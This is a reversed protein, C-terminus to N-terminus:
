REQSIYEDSQKLNGVLIEYFGTCTSRRYTTVVIVCLSFIWIVFANWFSSDNEIICGVIGTPLIGVIYWGIFSLNLAFFKGKNGRMMWKSEDICRMVGKTPDDAMIYIAQSYRIAAIIGPVIFLLSWLFTFLGVMFLVCFAKVFYEFGVFAMAPEVPKKRFLNLFFITIGLILPGQVIFIYLAALPVNGDSYNELLNMGFLYNLIMPPLSICVEYILVVIIAIKWNGELAYRGITRLNKSSERIM